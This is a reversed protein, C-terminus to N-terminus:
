VKGVRREESRQLDFLLIDFANMKDPAPKGSGSGYLSWIPIGTKEDVSSAVHEGADATGRFGHEPSFIGVVNFHNGIPMAGLHVDGAMGTQNTMVAVRKGKLLPFYAGTVEAGTRVSTEGQAGTMAALLIFLLFYFKKM